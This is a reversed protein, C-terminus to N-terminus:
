AFPQQSNTRARNGPQILSTRFQTTEHNHTGGTHECTVDVIQMDNSPVTNRVFCMQNNTLTLIPLSSCLKSVQNGETHYLDISCHCPKTDSRIVNMHVCCDLQM